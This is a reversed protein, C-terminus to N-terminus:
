HNSQFNGSVQICKKQDETILTEEDSFFIEAFNKISDSEVIVSPEASQPKLCEVVVKVIEQLAETQEQGWM